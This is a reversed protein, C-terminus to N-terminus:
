DYQPHFWGGPELLIGSARRYEENNVKEPDTPDEPMLHFFSCGHILKSDRKSNMEGVLFLQRNYKKFLAHLKQSEEMLLADVDPLKDTEVSEGNVYKIKM